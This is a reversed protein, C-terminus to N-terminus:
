NQDYMDHTQYQQLHLLYSSFTSLQLVECFGPHMCWHKCVKHMQRQSCSRNNASKVFSQIHMFVHASIVAQKCRMERSSVRQTRESTHTKRYTDKQLVVKRNRLIQRVHWSGLLHTFQLRLDPQRM